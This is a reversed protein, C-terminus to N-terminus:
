VIYSKNSTYQLNNYTQETAPSPSCTMKSLWTFQSIINEWRQCKRNLLHMPFITLLSLKMDTWREVHFLAAGVTCIKIFNTKKTSIKSM